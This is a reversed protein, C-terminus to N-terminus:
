DRRYPFPQQQPGGPPYMGYNAPGTSQTNKAQPQFQELLKQINTLTGGFQSIYKQLDEYDIKKLMTLMGAITESTKGASQSNNSDKSPKERKYPDWIEHDEGFIAWEEYIQQWSRDKNRVEEVLKPHDKAFKKFQNIKESDM